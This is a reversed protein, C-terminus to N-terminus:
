IRPTACRPRLPRPRLDGADALGRPTSAEPVSGGSRRADIAAMADDQRSATRRASSPRFRLRADPRQAVTITDELALPHPARRRSPPPTALDVSDNRLRGARPRRRAAFASMGGWTAGGIVGIGAVTTAAARATRHRRVRRTVAAHGSALSTQAFRGAGARAIEALYDHATNM